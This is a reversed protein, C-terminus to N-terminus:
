CGVLVARQVGRALFDFHRAAIHRQLRNGDVPVAFGAGDLFDAVLEVLLRPHFRHHRHIVCQAVPLEARRCFLSERLLAALARRRFGHVVVGDAHVHFFDSVVPAIRAKRAQPCRIHQHLQVHRPVLEGRRALRLNAARLVLDDADVLIEPLHFTRRAIAPQILAFEVLAFDVLLLIARFDDAVADFGAVAM